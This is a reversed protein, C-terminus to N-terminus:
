PTGKTTPRNRWETPIHAWPEGRAAASAVRQVVQLPYGGTGIRVTSLWRLASTKLDIVKQHDTLWCCGEGGCGDFGDSM